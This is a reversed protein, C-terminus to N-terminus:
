AYQLLKRQKSLIDDSLYVWCSNWVVEPRSISGSSLLTAFLVRTSQGSAWNSAETIGDVYEKDDDLLGLAYCADRFTDYQTGNVFCLDEYCTPGRVVNLLCRLYYMDGSGPPVYYIRGIAFGKQRQFWKKEKSDWVFKTPFEAYTLEKAESYLKNAEMWELFMSSESTERDLIDEINDSDKYYVPHKGPLHFSLRQVHPDRFQIEYELTRWAAECSSIYRCDYYMQIEDLSKTTEDETSSKYFSATVRDNGKNIYKFLYKIARSQNCWEVNLHGGYRLLLYRNHPVVYRNDLDAGSKRIIRGDDRRRYIPYGDDDISSLEVFRKPFHKSCRGNIMCPSDRKDDGCPGHLMFERVASYYEPDNQEDPIEASIIKDISSPSPFKDEQCLFLLIHAHPLGRKQFEVTYVVAKVSGFIKRKRIDDILGDLKTKFIRCVIDPRDEPKLGRSEVFRTIEPWKPNCTLTIFLDPYGAWRCIAMADQYSQVMYRAGGTFSSPLIIRRGQNSADTEGRLLADNLGSYLECRLQQQNFRIYRLRSSEIMTYADVIFQQFLRKSSLITTAENYREHVRFAFFERMSVHKRGAGVYLESFPINERYGDEGYPFLLPYHLALYSAHLENIRKLRGSQTEVIIDRNGLNEDLDGVILAAVESTTPLNYRRGDRNRKGILRLKVDFSGSDIMRDKVMRFSRVLVNERDLMKKLDSVIEAHLDNPDADR